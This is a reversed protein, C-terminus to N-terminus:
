RWSDKPAERGMTAEIPVGLTVRTGQTPAAVIALTGRLRSMQERVSFLGFGGGSSRTAADLDFGRGRDRVEIEYRDVETRLSVHVQRAESHKVVNMLLERVSRFLIAATTEDLQPPAGYETIEIHVGHRGEVEEALWSLAERLGLDYLVPPSLDFMLTRTDAITQAVLDLAGQIADRAEGSTREYASMMKLRAAALAQGIQDHLDVAIRRREQEEAVTAEFAMNQLKEQYERIKRESQQRVTTDDLVSLVAGDVRRDATVYPRVTLRYWRGDRDHVTKEDPTSRLLVQEITKALDPADLKLRIDSIPRGVDAEILGLLRAATPTFRRIRFDRGLIVIPIAVSEFVNTLDDALRTSTATREIMEDNTTRLEENSAQLEEKATRLEENASHLEENSATMEESLARLEENNAEHREIVSRLYERTSALERRLEGEVDSQSLTGTPAESGAVASATDEFLVAFFRANPRSAFFPIVRLDIIRKADDNAAVVGARRVPEGAVRADDIAGQLELRLEERAMRLLDLNAIGPSPGFFPSVKGRFELITLQDDVVVGASAIATVIARDAASHVKIAETAAAPSKASADTM